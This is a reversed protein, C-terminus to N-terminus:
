ANINDYVLPIQNNDLFPMFLITIDSDENDIDYIKAHDFNDKEAPIGVIPFERIMLTNKKETETLPREM